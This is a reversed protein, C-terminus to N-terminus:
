VTKDFDIADDSIIIRRYKALWVFDRKRQEAMDWFMLPIVWTIVSSISFELYIINKEDELFGGIMLLGLM